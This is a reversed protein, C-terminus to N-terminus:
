GRAPSGRRLRDSILVAALLSGLLVLAVAGALVVNLWRPAPDLGIGVGFAWVAIAAPDTASPVLVALLFASVTAMVALSVAVAVAVRAGRPSPRRADM